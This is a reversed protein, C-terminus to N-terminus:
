EAGKSQVAGSAPVPTSAPVPAACQGALERIPPPSAEEPLSYPVVCQDREGQGWRVTLRGSQAAGTVFAQGDPGVVGVEQGTESEIKSGLPLMQGKQDTLTMLLRFGVSTEFKAVVVAGRTPVVETAANKVEVTDGLDATRLALRNLRYPSLNPIVANGAADTAVGPQSELGVGGAKPAQVLGITEGLPQSLTVGGSHMVLGGAMGFTTQGYGRGQSYGLDFRGVQSLYSASASGSTGQGSANSHGTTVNYTLRSDDFASGYVSAQQSLQGNSDRNVSYMASARTDGLPISLTFMIQRTAPRNLTTSHNYFVSYGFQKYSGSYGVQALRDKADTGWYSQQRITAFVSGMNGIQQSLEFRLENRRSNLSSPLLLEQMQVAEQFTRYGSTSYRYGAMRFNTGSDIFSKSYLFRLSQGSYTNNLRDVTRASSLDVSVAGFDRMNKGVGALLSQYKGSAILGGYVSFENGLGRALTAQMFTPQALLPRAGAANGDYGNRYKGVTASYRWTGERLLTPVASFAQTYKTQRGDAEAITVELDGSSATPYLDDIVFPGPAVFTSYIIYGNQRVTVRANTQAVGRITPAYGQQSDPLMADDSSIQVGRFPLSDFFNGPTNGDGILLQGNISALDRQAYTNIGQWKSKGDIGRNYTSFHRFRWDGYNFGARLGAFLSNRQLTKNRDAFPNGDFANQPTAFPNTDNRYNDGSYRAFNLQYDLMGATIGKDWKEPGVAGRASRKLAAQPISVFLRQKGGDYTFTADPIITGLDVCADDAASALAPFVAVNVGWDDLMRRTLCPVADSKGERELFRIETQGAGRENLSVDVMYKGALVRNGFSFLSLDAHPQDGGIGLFEENFSSGAVQQQQAHGPTGLAGLLAACLTLRFPARLASSSRRM